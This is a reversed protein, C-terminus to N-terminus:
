EKLRCTRVKTEGESKRVLIGIASLLCLTLSLHHYSTVSIIFLMRRLFFLVNFLNDLTMLILLFSFM